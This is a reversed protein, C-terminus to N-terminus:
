GGASGTFGLFRLWQRRDRRLRLKIDHNVPLFPIKVDHVKAVSASRTHSRGVRLNLFIFLYIIISPIYLNLFYLNALIDVRM